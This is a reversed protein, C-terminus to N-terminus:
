TLLLKPNIADLYSDRINLRRLSQLSRALNNVVVTLVDVNFGPYQKSIPTCNHYKILLYPDESGVSAQLSYSRYVTIYICVTHPSESNTQYHEHQLFNFSGHDKDVNKYRATHM